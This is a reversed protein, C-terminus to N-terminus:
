ASHSIKEKQDGGQQDQHFRYRHMRGITGKGILHFEFLHGRPECGNVDVDIERRQRRVFPEREV